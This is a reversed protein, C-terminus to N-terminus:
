APRIEVYTGSPASQMHNTVLQLKIENVLTVLTAEDTSDANTITNTNDDTYHVTSATFHVLANEKIENTLTIASTTDTADAITVALSAALNHVGELATFHGDAYVKIQNILATADVGDTADATTITDRALTYSLPDLRTTTERRSLHFTSAINDLLLQNNAAIAAALLDMELRRAKIAM